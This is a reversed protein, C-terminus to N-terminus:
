GNYRGREENGIRVKDIADQLKYQSNGHWTGFALNVCATITDALEYLLLPSDEGEYQLAARVESAEELIKVAKDNASGNSFPMVKITISKDDSSASGEAVVSEAAAALDTNDNDWVIISYDGRQFQLM